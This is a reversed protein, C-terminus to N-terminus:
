GIASTYKLYETSYPICLIMEIVAAAAIVRQPDWIWPSNHGIFVLYSVAVFFQPPVLAGWALAGGYSEGFASTCLQHFSISEHDVVVVSLRRSSRLFMLTGEMNIASSCLQITTRLSMLWVLATLFVSYVIGAKMYCYPLALVGIGAISKFLNLGVATPSSSM